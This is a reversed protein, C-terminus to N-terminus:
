VGEAARGTMGLQLMRLLVIGIACALSWHVIADFPDEIPGVVLDLLLHFASLFAFMVMGAVARMFDNTLRDVFSKM